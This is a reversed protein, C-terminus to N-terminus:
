EVEEFFAEITHDGVISKFTYSEVAGVSKGDVLVDSIVYGDNPTITFTKRMGYLFRNVGSSSISGDESATARITYRPPTIFPVFDEKEDKTPEDEVPAEVISWSVTFTGKYRGIGNLTITYSGVDTASTISDAVVEYDTGEVLSTGDISLTYKPSQAEGTYTLPSVTMAGSMDGRERFIVTKGANYSLEAISESKVINRDGDFYIGTTKGTFEAYGSGINLTCGSSIYAGYSEEAEGGNATVNAGGTITIDDEAYIGCAYREAEGGSYGVNLSGEGTITLKGNKVHIAGSPATGKGAVATVTSDGVLEITLDHEAYIASLGDYAITANNLTLTKTTPDYSVTGDGFVNQYNMETVNVGCVTVAYKEASIFTVSKATSLDITPDALKVDINVLSRKCHIGNIYGDCTFSASDSISLIKIDGTGEATGRADAGYSKNSISGGTVTGGRLTVKAEGSIDIIINGFCGLGISCPSFGGWVPLGTAILVTDKGSVTIDGHAWVGGSEGSYYGSADVSGGTAQVTAGDKVTFGGTVYIGYAEVKSVTDGDCHVDLTGNGTVTLGCEDPFKELKIVKCGETGGVATVTSDGVLKITLDHEAHIASVGATTSAINANNLTLTQTTPEYSVTGDGLIDAANTDTVATGCIKIGYDEASVFVLSLCLVMCIGLIIGFLRKKM